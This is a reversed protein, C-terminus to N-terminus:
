RQGLPRGRDMSQRNSIRYREGKERLIDDTVGWQFLMGSVPAAAAAAAAAALLEVSLM